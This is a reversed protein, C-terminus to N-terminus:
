SLAKSLTERENLSTSRVFVGNIQERGYNM